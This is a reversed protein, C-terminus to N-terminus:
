VRLQLYKFVILIILDVILFEFYEIWIQFFWSELVNEVPCVEANPHPPPDPLGSINLWWNSFSFNCFLSFFNFSFRRSFPPHTGRCETCLCKANHCEAYHWKAYHCKSYCYESNLYEADCCEAYHFDTYHCEAYLFEAYHCQIVTSLMLVSLMLASLMIVSM